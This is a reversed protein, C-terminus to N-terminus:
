KIIPPTIGGGGNTLLTNVETPLTPETLTPATGGVIVTLEATNLQADTAIASSGFASKFDRM